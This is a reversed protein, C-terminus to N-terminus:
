GNLSPQYISVNVLRRRRSCRDCPRDTCNRCRGNTQSFRANRSTLVSLNNDCVQLLTNILSDLHDEPSAAYGPPSNVSNPSSASTGPPSTNPYDTRNYPWM